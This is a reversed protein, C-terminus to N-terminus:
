LGLNILNNLKNLIGGKYLNYYCSDFDAIIIMNKNLYCQFNHGSLGHVRYHENDSKFKNQEPIRIEKEVTEFYQENEQHWFFSYILFSEINHYYAPLSKKQYGYVFIEGTFNDICLFEDNFDHGFYTTGLPLKEEDHMEDFPFQVSSYYNKFRDFTCDAFMSTLLSSSNGYKMLFNQHDLRIDIYNQELFHDVHEQNIGQLKLYHMMLFNILENKNTM